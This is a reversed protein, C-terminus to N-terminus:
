MHRKLFSYSKSGLKFDFLECTDNYVRNVWNKIIKKICKNLKRVFWM